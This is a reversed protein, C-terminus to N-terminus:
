MPCYHLPENLQLKSYLCKRSKKCGGDAESGKSEKEQEQYQLLHKTFCMWSLKTM